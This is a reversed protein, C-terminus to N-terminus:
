QRITFRKQELRDDDKVTLLGSAFMWGRPSTAFAAPDLHPLAEGAGGNVQEAVTKPENDLWVELILDRKEPRFSGEPASIDVSVLSADRTQHFQRKM